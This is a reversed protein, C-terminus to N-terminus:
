PLIATDQEQADGGEFDDDHRPDAPTIGVGGSTLWVPQPRRAALLGLAIGVLTMGTLNRLPYDVLGHLAFILLIAVAANRMAAPVADSRRARSWLAFLCVLVILGVIGALMGGEIALELYESHARNPISSDVVELPELPLFAQVFTGMGSGFPWYTQAVDVGTQWLSIRPDDTATFRGAITGLRGDALGFMAGLTLVAITAGGALGAKRWKRSRLAFWIAAVLAGGTLLLIGARSATLITACAFVFAVLILGVRLRRAAHGRRNLSALAAAACIAALFLDAAANRNAHIGTIWAPHSNAYLRAEIGGGALQVMGLLTGIIAAFVVLGLAKRQWDPSLRAIGIAIIVLPILALLSSLTSQPAISIPRWSQDAGALALNAAVVDRGPLGQWLGPPLPILHLLPLALAACILLKLVWDPQRMPRLHQGTEGRDGGRLSRVALAAIYLGCACIILTEALPSPSGGGGSFLCLAILALLGHRDVAVSKVQVMRGCREKM